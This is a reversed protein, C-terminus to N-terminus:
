KGEGEEELETRRGGLSVVSPDAAALAAAAAASATSADSSPPTAEGRWRWGFVAGRPYPWRKQLPAEPLSLARQVGRALEDGRTFAAHVSPARDLLAAKLERLLFHCAKKM